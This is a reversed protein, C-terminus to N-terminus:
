ARLRGAREYGLDRAVELVESWTPFMRGSSCQYRRIAESFEREVDSCPQEPSNRISPSPIFMVPEQLFVAVDRHGVQDTQAGDEQPSSRKTDCINHWKFRSRNHPAM